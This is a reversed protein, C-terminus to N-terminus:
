LSFGGQGGQGVGTQEPRVSITEADLKGERGHRYSVEVFEDERLGSVDVSEIGRTILTQAGIEVRVRIVIGGPLITRVQIHPSRALAKGVNELYGWITPMIGRMSGVATAARSMAPM